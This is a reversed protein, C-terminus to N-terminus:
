VAVPQKALEVLSRIGNYFATWQPPDDATSAALTDNLQKWVAPDCNEGILAFRQQDDPANVLLKLFQGPWTTRAVEQWDHVAVEDKVNDLAELMANTVREMLRMRAEDLNAAPISVAQQTGSPPPPAGPTFTVMPDSVGTAVTPPAPPLPPAVPPIAAAEPAKEPTPEPAAAPPAASQDLGSLDAVDGGVGTMEGELEIEAQRAAAAQEEPSVQPQQPRVPPVVPPPGQPARQQPQQPAPTVIPRQPIPVGPIGQYTPAAQQQPQPRPQQPRVVPQQPVPGPLAQQTGAMMRRAEDAEASQALRMVDQDTPNTNGFFRMLLAQGGPTGLATAVVDKLMGFINGGIGKKPDWGGGGSEEAGSAREYMEMAEKKGQALLKLATELGLGQNQPKNLLQILQTNMQRIMDRETSNDKMNLKALMEFMGRSQEASMKMFEFTNDKEVPKPAALATLIPGLLANNAQTMSAIIEATKDPPPTPAPRNALAIIAEGLKAFGANMIEMQRQAREDAARRDAEIQVKLVELENSKPEGDANLERLQKEQQMLEVQQRRTRVKQKAIREEEMLRERDRRLEKLEEDEETPAGPEPEEIEFSQYRTSKPPYQDTPISLYATRVKPNNLIPRHGNKDCPTVKFEGGGWEEAIVELLTDVPMVDYACLRGIKIPRGDPGIESRHRSVYFEWEASEPLAVINEIIDRNKQDRIQGESRMHAPVRRAVPAPRNVVPRAPYTVTTQAMPVGSAPPTHGNTEVVEETTVAAQEAPTEIPDFEPESADFDQDAM